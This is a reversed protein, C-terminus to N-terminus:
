GGGDYATCAVIIQWQGRRLGHRGRDAAMAKDNATAALIKDGYPASLPDHGVGGHDVMMIPRSPSSGGNDEDPWAMPWTHRPCHIMASAAM